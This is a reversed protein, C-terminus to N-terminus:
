LYASLFICSPHLEGYVPRCCINYPSPSHSEVICQYFFRFLLMSVTFCSLSLLDRPRVPLPGPSTRGLAELPHLGGTHCYANHALRSLEYSTFRGISYLSWHWGNPTFRVLSNWSSGLKSSRYSIIPLLLLFM